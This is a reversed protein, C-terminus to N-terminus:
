EAPNATQFAEEYILEKGDRLCRIRGTDENEHLRFREVIVSAYRPDLEMTYCIRDTEECAILTASRFAELARPSLDGLNGIPTAIVHLMLINYWLGLTQFWTSPRVTSRLPRQCMCRTALLCGFLLLVAAPRRLPRASPSGGLKKVRYGWCSQGSTFHPPQSISVADANALNLPTTGIMSSRTFFEGRGM